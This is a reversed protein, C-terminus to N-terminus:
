RIVGRNRNQQLFIDPVDNSNANAVKGIASTDNIPKAEGISAMSQEMVDAAFQRSAYLLAYTLNGHYAEEDIEHIIEDTEEDRKWLTNELEDELITDKSVQISGNALWQALQEIALDKDYKYANRVDPIHFEKYLSWSIGKENTDAIVTPKRAIKYKKQAEEYQSVVEMAIENPTKKEETWERVIYAEKRKKNCLMTLVAAKDEFGYDVGIFCYDWTTDPLAEYTQITKYTRASDDFAGVVGLYERQIFPDDITTNYDKCVEDLVTERNPIFPNERFDWNYKKINPNNWMEIVYNSKNRPPTGVMILQSDAYDIMAPGIVERILQMINRQHAIEDIIILSLKEGRLKNIDAINNNGIILIWSGNDFDIKGGNITGNYKQCIAGLANELPHYIQRVAADFSRNIYVCHQDPRLIRRALLRGALETKGTRRSNIILIKKDQTNDYVTQQKDYLTNRIQYEAFAIDRNMQKNVESDLTELLKENFLSSALLMGARSNPDSKAEKLFNDIFQSMFVKGNKDPTTLKERIENQVEPTIRKHRGQTIAPSKTIAQTTARKTKSKTSKRAEIAKAHVDPNNAFNNPNHGKTGTPDGNKNM